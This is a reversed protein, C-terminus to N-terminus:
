EDCKCWYCNHTHTMGKLKCIRDLPGSPPAMFTFGPAGEHAALAKVSGLMHLGTAGKRWAKRLFFIDTAILPFPYHQSQTVLLAAAGVLKKNETLVLCRLQGKADLERYRDVQAEAVGIMPNATEQIYEEAWEDWGDTAYFDEFSVVQYTIM